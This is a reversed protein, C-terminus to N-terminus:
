VDGHIQHVEWAPHREILWSVEGTIGQFRRELWGHDVEFTTHERINPDPYTSDFDEFYTKVDEYWTGQNEKLAFRCDAKAAVM